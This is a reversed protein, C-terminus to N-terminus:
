RWKRRGIERVMKSWEHYELYRGFSPFWVLIKGDKHIVWKPKSNAAEVVLKHWDRSRINYRRIRVAYYILVGIVFGTSCAALIVLAYGLNM